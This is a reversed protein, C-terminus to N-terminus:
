GAPWAPTRRPRRARRPARAGACRGRSRAARAALGEDAVGVALDAVVNVSVNSAAALFKSSSDCVSNGPPPPRRVSTRSSLPAAAPARRRRLGVVGAVAGGLDLGLRGGLGGGVGLGRGVLGADVGVVVEADLDLDRGRALRHLAQRQEGAALLRHGRDGEQEADEEGLRAREVDEVLDLGREVVEVDRAVEVEECAWASRAWNM